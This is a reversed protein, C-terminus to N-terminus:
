LDFFNNTGLEDYFHKVEPFFLGRNISIGDREDECKCLTPLIIYKHPKDSTKSVNQWM